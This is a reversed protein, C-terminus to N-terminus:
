ALIFSDNVEEAPIFGLHRIKEAVREVIGHGV